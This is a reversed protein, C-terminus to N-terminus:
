DDADWNEGDIYMDLNITHDTIEDHYIQGKGNTGVKYGDLSYPGLLGTDNDKITIFWQQDSIYGHKKKSIQINRAFFQLRTGPLYAEKNYFTLYLEYIKDDCRNIHWNTTQPLTIIYRDVLDIGYFTSNYRTPIYVPNEAWSSRTTCKEGFSYWEIEAKVQWGKPKEGQFTLTNSALDVGKLETSVDSLYTNGIRIYYDPIGKTWWFAIDDSFIKFSLYLATLVVGLVIKGQKTKLKETLYSQVKALSVKTNNILKNLSIPM